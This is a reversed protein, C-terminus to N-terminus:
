AGAALLPEPVAALDLAESRVRRDYYLIVTGLCLFPLTLARILTGALEMAATAAPSSGDALRTVLGLGFNAAIVPMWTIITLTAMVGFVNMWAGRALEKSRAQAQTSDLGELVVAPIMAFFVTFAILGPVVLLLLGLAVAFGQLFLSAWVPRFRAWAHSLGDRLDVPQGLYAASAQWTLAGFSVIAAAGSLVRAVLVVLPNAEGVLAYGLWLVLVPAHAVLATSALTGFHRRYLAFGGDLIEGFSLPRLQASAGANDATM